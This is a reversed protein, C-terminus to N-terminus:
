IDFDIIERCFYGCEQCYLSLHLYQGKSWDSHMVNHKRCKPCEEPYVIKCMGVDMREFTKM